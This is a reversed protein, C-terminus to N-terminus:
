KTPDADNSTNLSRSKLTASVLGPDILGAKALDTLVTRRIQAPTSLRQARLLAVEKTTFPEFDPPLEAASYTDLTWNLLATLRLDDIPANAVGPVRVLYARGEVSRAYYGMFGVLRPVAPPAGLGDRGHCGMCQRMYDEVAGAIWLQTSLSTGDAM